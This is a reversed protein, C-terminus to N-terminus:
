KIEIKIHTKWWFGERNESLINTISKKTKYLTKIEKTDIELNKISNILENIEEDSWTGIGFFLNATDKQKLNFIITDGNAIRDLDYNKNKPNLTIKIKVNSDANNVFDIKHIPDCSVNLIALFFLFLINIKTKM